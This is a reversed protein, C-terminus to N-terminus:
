RKGSASSSGARTKSSLVPLTLPEHEATVVFGHQCPFCPSPSTAPPSPLQPSMPPVAPVEQALRPECPCNMGGRTSNPPHRHARPVILASSGALHHCLSEPVIPCPQQSWYSHTCPLARPECGQPLRHCGVADWLMGCCGAADRLMGCCGVADWLVGCCGAADQLMGGWGMGDRLMGPSGATGPPGHSAPLTPAPQPAPHSGQPGSGPFETSTLSAPLLHQGWDVLSATVPRPQRTSGRCATLGPHQMKPHIQCLCCTKTIGSSPMAPEPLRHWPLNHHTFISSFIKRQSPSVTFHTAPPWLPLKCVAM